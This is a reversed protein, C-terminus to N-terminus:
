KQPSGKGLLAAFRSRARAKIARIHEPASPSPAGAYLTTLAARDPAPLEALVKRAAAVNAPPITAPGRALLSPEAASPHGEKGAGPRPKLSDSESM